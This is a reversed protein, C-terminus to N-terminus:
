RGSPPRYPDPTGMPILPYTKTSAEFDAVMKLITERREVKDQTTLNRGVIQDALEVDSENIKTGNVTAAVRDPPASQGFTPGMTGLMVALLIAAAGARPAAVTNSIRLAPMVKM